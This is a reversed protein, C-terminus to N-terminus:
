FNIDSGDLPPQFDDQSPPAPPIDSAQSAPAYIHGGKRRLLNIEAKIAELEKAQLKVLSVLRNREEIEKRITPGKDAVAVGGGTTNLEKELQFQKSGLEAIQSLLTTNEHTVSLLREKLDRQDKEVRGLEKRYQKEMLNLKAQLEEEGKSASHKDLKELDILQGFKLMQLEECKTKWTQIEAEFNITDKKLYGKDKYLKKLDSRQDDTETGLEVIRNELQKLGNRTFVVHSDMSAETILKCPGQPIQSKEEQFEPDEGSEISQEGAQQLDVMSMQGEMCYLQNLKLSIVVDLQNLRALKETQFSRIEKETNKLEKDIQKERQMHREHNRKLEDVNKQFEQLKEEKECRKDRLELVQEFLAMDCGAPCSDDIEEEDDDMDSDFDDDSDSWDEEEDDDEDEDAGLQRKKSKKVKRKFIKLLQQHFQHTEPCLSYFEKQIASAQDEWVEIEAKKASLKAQCDSISTRVVNKDIKAKELKATLAQDKAEFNQLLELEQYLVLMRLDAAKLDATTNAREARLEFLAEDFTQVNDERKKLLAEREAGLVVMARENEEAQLDPHQVISPQTSLEWAPLTEIADQCLKKTDSIAKEMKEEETEPPQEEEMETKAQMEPTVFTQAPPNAVLIDKTELEVGFAVLEAQTFKHRHDRWETADIEPQWYDNTSEKHSPNIKKLKADIEKIRENDKAIERIINLKKDRLQLFRKNFRMRIAHTSEELLLMQRRKKEANIQQDEPVEYDASSKLKFDGMNAEAYQIAMVDNIDEADKAPKKELMHALHAKRKQREAKRIEFTSKKQQGEGSDQGTMQRAHYGGGAYRSGDVQGGRSKDDTAGGSQMAAAKAVKARELEGLKLQEHIEMLELQMEVPLKRTRFSQVFYSSLFANLKLREMEVPEIFREHLKRLRIDSMESEYEMERHVEEMIEQGQKQLMEHYEPDVLFEEPALRKEEPQKENLEYLTKFEKQLELIVQRVIDKKREAATKRADEEKKLKEDQISYANDDTVDDSIAGALETSSHIDNHVSSKIVKDMGAPLKGGDEVAISHLPATMELLEEDTKHAQVVSERADKELNDANFKYAQLIGDGGVTLLFSADFSLQCAWVSSDGDHCNLRMFNEPESVTRFTVSGDDNGTM